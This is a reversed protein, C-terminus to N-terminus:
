NVLRVLRQEEFKPAAPLIDPLDTGSNDSTFNYEGNGILSFNRAVMGFYQQSANFGSNGGVEIEQTPMYLVGRITMEGGGQIQSTEGNAADPNQIFLFGEYSSGTHRGTLTLTGGGQVNFTADDGTFYFMVNDGNATAGAQINLRGGDIIYIGPEFTVEAQSKIEIGGCYRGPSLTFAGNKLKLMDATCIDGAVPPTFKPDYSASEDYAGVYAYPDVVPPCYERVTPDYAQHPDDSGGASCFGTGVAFSSNSNSNVAREHSSNTVGWCNKM